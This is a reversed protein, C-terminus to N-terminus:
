HERVPRISRGIFRNYISRYCNDPNFFLHYAYGFYPSKTWYFGESDVKYKLNGIKFGSAPLFICNDLSSAKKSSVLYGNHSVVIDKDNLLIRSGQEIWDWRCLNFDVLEDIEAKTPMRWGNGWKLRAADHNAELPTESDFHYSEASYWEKEETEGWAFYEGLEDPAVAGVNFTAWQVSLGLDVSEFVPMDGRDDHTRKSSDDDNSVINWAYGVPKDADDTPPKFLGVVRGFFDIIKGM